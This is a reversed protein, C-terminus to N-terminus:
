RAVTISKTQTSPLAGPGGPFSLVVSHTGAKLAHPLALTVKGGSLPAETKLRTGDVTVSVVGSQYISGIKVTATVTATSGAHGATQVILAPAKLGAHLSSTGLDAAFGLWLPEGSLAAQAAASWQADDGDDFSAGRVVHGAWVACQATNRNLHFLDDEGTKGETFNMGVTLQPVAHTVTFAGLTGGYLQNSAADTIQFSTSVPAYSYRYVADYHTTATACKSNLASKTLKEIKTIKLPAEVAYSTDTQRQPASSYTADTFYKAVTTPGLSGYPAADDQLNTGSLSHSSAISFTFGAIAYAPACRGFYAGAAPDSATVNSPNSTQAFSTCAAPMTAASAPASGAALAGLALVAIGLAALSKKM